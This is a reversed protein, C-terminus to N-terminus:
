KKKKSLTKKIIKANDDFYNVGCFGIYRNEEDHYHVIGHSYGLLGSSPFGIIVKPPNEGDFPKVTRVSKDHVKLKFWDNKM